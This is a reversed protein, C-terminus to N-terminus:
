CMGFACCFLSWVSVKHIFYPVALPDARGNCEPCYRDVVKDYMSNEGSFSMFGHAGMPHGKKVNVARYAGSATLVRRGCWFCMMM